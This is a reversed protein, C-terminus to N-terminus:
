KLNKRLNRMFTLGSNDLVRNNPNMLANLFQERSRERRKAIVAETQRHGIITEVEQRLRTNERKLEEVSEKLLVTM